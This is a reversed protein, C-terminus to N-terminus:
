VIVRKFTTWDDDKDAECQFAERQSEAHESDISDETEVEIIVREFSGKKRAVIDPVYGCISGPSIYGDVDAQVTYGQKQYMEALASVKKDHDSQSKETCNM